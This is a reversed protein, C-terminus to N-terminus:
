SLDALARARELAPGLLREVEDSAPARVLEAPPGVQVLRGRALVACRTALRLAEGLDHSVLVTTFGLRRQLALLETQLTARTEPDLAGFPEDLLLLPPETALARALAVRQAQGGSLQSPMRDAHEATLGVLTLLEQVRAEVRDKPWGALRPKTAVNEAVTQHPFLGLSQLTHGIRRRHVHPLLLSVDEGDIRITGEYAVLRAIASLLTSKGAGSAGVLVVLEGPEIALSVEVLAHTSGRRVGVGDLELAAGRHSM